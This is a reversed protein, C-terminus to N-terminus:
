FISLLFSGGYEVLDDDDDDDDYGDGVVCQEEDELYRCRCRGISM